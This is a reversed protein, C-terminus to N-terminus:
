YGDVCICTERGGFRQIVADGAGRRVPVAAFGLVGRGAKTGRPKEPHSPSARAETVGLLRGRRHSTYTSESESDFRALVEVRRRFRSGACIVDHVGLPRAHQRGREGVHSNSGSAIRAAKRLGRGPRYLTAQPHLLQFRLGMSSRQPIWLCPDGLPSERGSSLPAGMPRSDSQRIWCLAPNGEM